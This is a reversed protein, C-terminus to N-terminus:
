ASRLAHKRHKSKHPHKKSPVRSLEPKENMSSFIILASFIIFGLLVAVGLAFFFNGM